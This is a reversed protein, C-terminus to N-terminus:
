LLGALVGPPLTLDLANVFLLYAGVALGVAFLADRAPHTADFARATLWFLVSSAIVFGARELLM